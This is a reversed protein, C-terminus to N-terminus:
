AGSRRMREILRRAHQRLQALTGDNRITWRAAAAKRGSSWQSDIRRRAESRHMGRHVLRELQVEPDVTVVIVGDFFRDMGSEVLLAAEVIVLDSGRRARSRIRRDISELIAPHLIRELESRSSPDRFVRAGLKERDVRADGDLIGEGFREVVERHCRRGRRLLEHGVRDADIVDAGLGALMAALTSKGSGISGTLGFVPLPWDFPGMRAIIERAGTRDSATVRGMGQLRDM